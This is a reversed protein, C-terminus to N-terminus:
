AGVKKETMSAGGAMSEGGDGAVDKVSSGMLYGKISGNVVVM